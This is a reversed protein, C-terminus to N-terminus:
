GARGRAGQGRARVWPGWEPATDGPARDPDQKFLGIPGLGLQETLTPLLVSSECLGIFAVIQAWGLRRATNQPDEAIRLTRSTGGSGRFRGGIIM